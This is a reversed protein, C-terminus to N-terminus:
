KLQQRRIFLIFFFFCSHILFLFLYINRVGIHANAESLLYCVFAYRNAMVALHLPTRGEDDEHDIQIRTGFWTREILMRVVRPVNIVSSPSHYEVIANNITSYSGVPKEPQDSQINWM